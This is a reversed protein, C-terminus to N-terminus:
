RPPYNPTCKYLATFTAPGFLEYTKTSVLTAHPLPMSDQKEILTWGIITGGSAVEIFWAVGPAESIKRIPVVQQGTLLPTPTHLNSLKVVIPKQLSTSAMASFQRTQVDWGISTEAHEHCDYSEEFALVSSTSVGFITLWVIGLLGRKV